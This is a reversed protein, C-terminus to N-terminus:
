TKSTRQLPFRSFNLWIDLPNTACPHCMPVSNRIKSTYLVDCNANLKDVLLHVVLACALLLLRVGAHFEVVVDLLSLASFLEINL